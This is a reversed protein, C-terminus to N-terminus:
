LRSLKVGPVITSSCPPRSKWGGRKGGLIFLESFQGKTCGFVVGDLPKLQAAEM